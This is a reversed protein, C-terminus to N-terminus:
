ELLVQIKIPLTNSKRDIESAMDQQFSVVSTIGLSEKNAADVAQITYPGKVTKGILFNFRFTDTPAGRPPSLTIHINKAGQQSHQPRMDVTYGNCGLLEFKSSRILSDQHKLKEHAETVTWDFETAGKVFHVVGSSRRRGSVSKSTKCFLTSRRSSMEIDKNMMSSDVEWSTTNTDDSSHSKLTSGFVPPLPLPELPRTKEDGRSASYYHTEEADHEIPKEITKDTRISSTSDEADKSHDFKSSHLKSSSHQPSNDRRRGRSITRNHNEERPLSKLDPKNMINQHQKEWRVHVWDKLTELHENVVNVQRTTDNINKNLYELKYQLDDNNQKVSMTTLTGEVDSIRQHIAHEQDLRKMEESTQKITLERCLRNLSELAKKVKAEYAGSTENLLMSSQKEKTSLDTIVEALEDDRRKWNRGLVIIDQEIQPIPAVEDALKEVKQKLDDVDKRNEKEWDRCRFLSAMDAELKEIQCEQKKSVSKQKTIERCMHKFNEDLSSSLEKLYNFLSENDDSSTHILWQDDNSKSTRMNSNSM